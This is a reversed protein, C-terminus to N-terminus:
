ELDLQQLARSAGGLPTTLKHILVLSLFTGLVVLVLLFSARNFIVEKATVKTYFYQM